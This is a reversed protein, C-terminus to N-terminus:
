NTRETDILWQHRRWVRRAVWDLEDIIADVRAWEDATLYTGDGGDDDATLDVPANMPISVKKNEM